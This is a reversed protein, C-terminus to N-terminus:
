PYTRPVFVLPLGSSLVLEYQLATIQAVVELFVGGLQVPGVGVRVLGGLCFCPVHVDLRRGGAILQSTTVSPDEQRGGVRL